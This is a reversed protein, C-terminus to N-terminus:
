GEEDGVTWDIFQGYGYELAYEVAIGKLTPFEGGYYCDFLEVDGREFEFLYQEDFDGAETYEDLLKVSGDTHRLLLRLTPKNMM